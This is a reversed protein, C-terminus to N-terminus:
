MFGRSMAAIHPLGEGGLIRTVVTTESASAPAAVTRHAIGSGNAPRAPASATKQRVNHSPSTTRGHTGVTANSTSVGSAM